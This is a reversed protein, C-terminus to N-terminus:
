TESSGALHKCHPAEIVSFVSRSPDGQAKLVFKSDFDNLRTAQDPETTFEYEMYNSGIQVKTLYEATSTRIIFSRMTSRACSHILDPPSVMARHTSRNEYELNGNTAV